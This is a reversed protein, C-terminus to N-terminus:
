RTEKYRLGKVTTLLVRLQRNSLTARHIAIRWKRTATSQRPTTASNDRQQRTIKLLEILQQHTLNLPTISDSQLRDGKNLVYTASLLLVKLKHLSKYADSLRRPEIGALKLLKTLQHKKGLRFHKKPLPRKADGHTTTRARILMCNFIAYADAQTAVDDFQLTVGEYFRSSYAGTSYDVYRLIVVGAQMAIQEVIEAENDDFWDGPVPNGSAPILVLKGSEISVKDGRDLLQNLLDASKDAAGNRPIIGSPEGAKKTNYNEM